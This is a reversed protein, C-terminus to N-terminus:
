SRGSSSSLREPEREAEIRDVDPIQVLINAGNIIAGLFQIDESETFQDIAETLLDEETYGPRTALVLGDCYPELLLADNYRSLAPTDLVVLDFRGRVDELLQRMESSELIATAQGQVGPNPLLYLNEIAPVLRICDQQGYYRLPELYHAELTVNLSRAHSASRLDAEILLTRKGARASAIALNYASVTKGEDNVTSTILVMKVTQSGARRLNSRFREYPELYPSDTDQVLPLGDQDLALPMLPLLGLVPVEQQRLATQLEQLTHFTADLSDLLLVLGGGVLLGVVGGVMLIVLSGPSAAAVLETKAPQSIVLSGVTEKEALTVDELRSQIQDYFSRKLTVDQQLRSQQLQRDPIVSYQQRLERESRTLAVLQQQLTDRQTQLNVLTLALQQRAPDLSSDQSIQRDNPLPAAQNGGIVEDVRQRLLQQYVQQQHQLQVMTPHSPRLDQGLVQMQTQTQYIQARLSAIIPDASLASATYAQDPTLGLRSQLSRIQANIGELNLRIQRQQVQSGTIASVIDGEQAAQIAPGQRRVYQKLADESQQLEQGVQASLQRLNNAMNSLQQTNFLRSQEVMSTMLRTAIDQAQAEKPSSYTVLIRLATPQPPRDDGPPKPNVIVTAQQRLTAPPIDLPAAVSGVVFDSLLIDPTLAQGQQQQQQLATGTQSVTVPPSSYALFGSAVYNAPPKPQLAAVSSLGMVVVFGAMGAWKHRDLAVLYRKVIPSPM